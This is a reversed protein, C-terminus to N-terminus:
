PEVRFQVPGEPATALEDLYTALEAWPVPRRSTSSIPRSEATCLPPYIALGENLRVHEVEQEWGPWRMDAYFDAVGDGLSWLVFDSHGLGLATWALSDPAWYHMEGPTGGLGGGDVAFRGGLVDFAVLLVQPPSPPTGADLGNAAALGPLGEAGAGLIRLWGHDIRVAGAHLALAGLTSRATVQLASLCAEGDAQPTPVITASSCNHIADALQPWVPDDVDRLEALSRVDALKVDPPEPTARKHCAVAQIV